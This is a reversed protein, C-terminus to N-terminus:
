QVGDARAVRTTSATDASPCEARPLPTVDPLQLKLSIGYKRPGRKNQSHLNLLSKKSFQTMFDQGPTCGWILGGVWKVGHIIQGLGTFSVPVCDQSSIPSIWRFDSGEVCIVSYFVSDCM